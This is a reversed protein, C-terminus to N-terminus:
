KSLIAKALKDSTSEPTKDTSKDAADISAVRRKPDFLEPLDQKISEIATDIAKDDEIGELKMLKVVRHPDEFGAERLKHTVEAELTKQRADSLQAEAAELKAKLDKAEHRYDGAEKNAKALATRMEELQEEVTKNGENEM